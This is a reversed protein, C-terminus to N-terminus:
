GFSSSSRMTGATSAIRNKFGHIIELEEFEGRGFRDDRYRRKGDEAESEHALAAGSKTGSDGRGSKQEGHGCHEFQRLLCRQKM